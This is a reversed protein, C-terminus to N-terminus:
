LVAGTTAHDTTEEATDDAQRAQEPRHYDRAWALRVRHAADEDGALLDVLDDLLRAYDLPVNEARLLQVAQRLYHPLADRDVALLQTFRRNVSAKRTREGPPLALHRMAKGLTDRGNGSPQPHLAFLGAVLLWMEQEREPPDHRFVVDYAEAEQRAGAFSRRLRALVRRSEAARRPHDLGQYLEYLTTVFATRKDKTRSM